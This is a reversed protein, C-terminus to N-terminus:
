GGMIQLRKTGVVILNYPLVEADPETVEDGHRGAPIHGVALSHVNEGYIVCDFPSHIRHVRETVPNCHLQHVHYGIRTVRPM